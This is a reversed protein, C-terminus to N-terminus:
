FRKGGVGATSGFERLLTGQLALIKWTNILTNSQFTLLQTETNFLEGEADLLDLLRRTGFKYQQMYDDRTKLNYIMMEELTQVQEQALLLNAYTTNLDGTVTDRMAAIDRNAALERAQAAQVANTTAMGSFINWRMGVGVGANWSQLDNAQSMNPDSYDTGLTMMVQPHYPAKALKVQSQAAQADATLARIKPNNWLAFAVMAEPTALPQQPYVPAALGPPVQQGTLKQYNVIAVQLANRASNQTSLARSLRGQAQAVDASTSLGSDKLSSQVGLIDRHVKVYQNALTVVDQSRLLDVHAILGELALYTANDYVRHDLSEVRSINFDVSNGVAGGNWLIQTATVGVNGTTAFNDGPFNARSTSNDVVGATLRSNLDVTPLYGSRAKRVEHVQAHRSQRISELSPSYRLM